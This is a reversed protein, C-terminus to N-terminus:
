VLSNDLQGLTLNTQKSSLKDQQFYKKSNLILEKWVNLLLCCNYYKYKFNLKFSKILNIIFIHIFNAVKQQQQQQQKGM